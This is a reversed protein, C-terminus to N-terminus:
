VRLPPLGTPAGYFDLLEEEKEEEQQNEAESEEEIKKISAKSPRTRSSTGTVPTSVSMPTNEAEFAERADEYPLRFAPFGDPAREARDMIEKMYKRVEDAPKVVRTLPELIRPSAAHIRFTVPQWYEKLNSEASSKEASVAPTEAQGPKVDSKEDGPEQKPSVDAPAPTPTATAKDTKSAKKSKSAGKSKRGTGADPATDIPFPVNPDVRKVILFSALITNENPLWELISHEPFLYRDGSGAHGSTSSGYPTLPSTFEFVVSKYNIPAPTPRAPPAQPRYYPSPSSYPLPRSQVPTNAGYQSQQQQQQQQQQPHLPQPPVPRPVQQQVMSSNPPAHFVPVQVQPIPTPVPPPKSNGISPINASPTSLAPQLGPTARVAPGTTTVPEQKVAPVAVEIKASSPNPPAASLHSAQTLAPARPPAPIVPGQAIDTAPTSAPPASNQVPAPAPTTVSTSATTSISAPAPVGAPVQVSVSSSVPASVPATAPTSPAASTPVPGPKQASLPIPTAASPPAPAPAAPKQSPAPLLQGSVPAPQNQVGQAAASTSPIQQNSNVPGPAQVNPPPGPRQSIVVQPSAPRPFQASAAPHQVTPARQATAAAAANRQAQQERAKIIANLEDIHAQFARLQEQSAQSSAVVRMLAKLEPDAAARTALMQIVPDPSPKAPQGPQTNQPPRPNPQPPTQVPARPQPPAAHTGPYAHPPRAAPTPPYAARKQNGSYPQYQQFNPPHSYQAMQKPPPAYQIAPPANPDKVTYIMADFLHPGVTVDCPGVRTMSDKPPNNKEIQERKTKKPKTYYRVLIGDSLWKKKSRELATLMLKEAM